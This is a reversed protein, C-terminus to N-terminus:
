QQAMVGIARMAAEPTHPPTYHPVGIIESIPVLDRRIKAATAV